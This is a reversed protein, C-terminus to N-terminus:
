KVISFRALPAMRAKNISLTNDTYTINDAKLLAQILEDETTESCAILTSIGQTFSIKNPYEIEYGFSMSNCNARAFVQNTASEFQIFYQNPNGEIERGFLEILQWKKDEVANNGMRKLIYHDSLNGVIMNGQRDLQRLQNEEVKYQNPRENKSIGSLMINNNQWTFSGKLTDVQKSPTGLYRTTLVYTQKPELTLITEIGECDACSLIGKYRGEWDLSNQATHSDSLTTTLKEEAKKNLTSCASLSLL